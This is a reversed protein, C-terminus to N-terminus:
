KKLSKIVPKVLQYAGSVFNGIQLADKLKMKKLLKPEREILAEVVINNRDANSSLDETKRMPKNVLQHFLMTPETEAQAILPTVAELLKRTNWAAQIKKYAAIGAIALGVLVGILTEINGVLAIIKLILENLNEM